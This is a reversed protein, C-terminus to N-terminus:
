SVRFYHGSDEIGFDRESGGPFRFSPVSGEPFRLVAGLIFRCTVPGLSLRIVHDLVLLSSFTPESNELFRLVACLIFRWTM